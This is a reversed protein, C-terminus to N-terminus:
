ARKEKALDEAVKIAEKADIYGAGQVNADGGGPLKDATKKLIEKIQIPNLNPNAEIMQAVVGAVIPSAMSTGPLGIYLYIDKGPVQGDRPIGPIAGLLLKRLEESPLELAEAPIVEAKVMQKAIEKLQEPKSQKIVERIQDMKKAQIDLFSNPVNLSMIETGPSVIDPKTEGALTPGRSSFPAIEDDVREPTNKDDTAGVTIVNPNDGPASTITGTKPGENGAAAVVTIGAKIAENVAKNIPDIFPIIHPIGLSMNIVRINYKDKNKIIWDIAKVINKIVSSIKGGGSADVVKLGILNAEPAPGHYFGQSIVGAGAADGAVHTGHGSDDYAEAVGEKGGVFDKFAVLRDKVDPHLAIGSDIIAIGVGKGTYKKNEEITPMAVNLRLVDKTKDEEVAPRPVRGTPPPLTPIIRIEKDEVVSFGAKELEKITAETGSIKLAKIDKLEQEVKIGMKKLLNKVKVETGKDGTAVLLKKIGLAESSLTVGDAKTIATVETHTKKSSLVIQELMKVDRSDFPNIQKM